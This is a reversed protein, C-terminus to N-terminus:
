GRTSFFFGRRDYQYELAEGMREALYLFKAFSKRPDISMRNANFSGLPIHYVGNEDPTQRTLFADASPFFLSKVFLTGDERQAYGLIAAFDFDPTSFLNVSDEDFCRKMQPLYFPRIVATQDKLHALKQDAAESSEAFPVGDPRTLRALIRPANQPAAPDLSFSVQYTSAFHEYRKLITVAEEALALRHPNPPLSM